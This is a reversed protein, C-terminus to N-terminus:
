LVIDPILQPLTVVWFDRYVNNIKAQNIIASQHFFLIAACSHFHFHSQGSGTAPHARGDGVVRLAFNQADVTHVVGIDLEDPVRRPVLVHDAFCASHLEAHDSKWCSNATQLIQALIKSDRMSLVRRAEISTGRSLK